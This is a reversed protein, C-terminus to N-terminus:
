SHFGYKKTYLDFIAGIVYAPKCCVEELTKNRYCATFEGDKPGRLYIDVVPYNLNWLSLHGIVEELANNVAGHKNLYDASAELEAYTFHLNVTRM